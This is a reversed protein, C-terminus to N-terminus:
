RCDTAVVRYLPRRTLQGGPVREVLGADVLQELHYHVRGRDTLGVARGLQQLTPPRRGAERERLMTLYVRTTTWGVAGPPLGVRHRNM